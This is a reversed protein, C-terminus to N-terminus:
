PVLLLGQICFQDSISPVAPACRHEPLRVSVPGSPGMFLQRCLGPCALGLLQLQLSLGRSADSRPFAFDHGCLSKQRRSGTLLRVRISNAM